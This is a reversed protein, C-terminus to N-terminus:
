PNAGLHCAGTSGNDNLMAPGTKSEEKTVTTM